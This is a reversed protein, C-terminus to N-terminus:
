FETFLSDYNLKLREALEDITEGIEGSLLAAEAADREYGALRQELRVRLEARQNKTEERVRLRTDIQELEEEAQGVRRRALKEDIKVMKVAPPNDPGMGIAARTLVMEGYKQWALAAFDTEELESNTEFSCKWIEGGDSERVALYGAALGGEILSYFVAERSAERQYHGMLSLEAM